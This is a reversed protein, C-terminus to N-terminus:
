SKVQLLVGNPPATTTVPDAVAVPTPPTGNSTQGDARNSRGTLIMVLAGLVTSVTGTMFAIFAIAEMNDSMHRLIWIATSLCSTWLLVTLILLILKDTNHNFWSDKVGKAGSGFRGFSSVHEM